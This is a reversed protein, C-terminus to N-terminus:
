EEGGKTEADKKSAARRRPRTAGAPAESAESSASAAPSAKARRRAPKAEVAEAPAGPQSTTESTEEAEAAPSEATAKSRRRARPKEPPAEVAQPEPEEAKADRGADIADIRVRTLQQRHGTRRRYKVKQKFKFVVIKPGREEGLITGRVTVGDVLPTGVTVTDGDGILLVRDFTVTDGPAATLREVVLTGGAEVRYQKGGTSVVAYMGEGNISRHIPDDGPPPTGGRVVVRASSRLGRLV